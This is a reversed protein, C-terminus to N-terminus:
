FRKIDYPVSLIFALALPHQPGLDRYPHRIVAHGTSPHNTLDEVVSALSNGGLYFSGMKNM